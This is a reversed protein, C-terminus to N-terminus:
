IHHECESEVTWFVWKSLESEVTWFVWKSLESEVTWFVWKYAWILVWQGFKFQLRNQHQLLDANIVVTLNWIIYIWSKWLGFFNPTVKAHGDSIYIYIICVHMNLANDLLNKVSSRQMWQNMANELRQNKCSAAEHPSGVHFWRSTALRPIHTDYLDWMHPNGYMHTGGLRITQLPVHLWFPHNPPVGM